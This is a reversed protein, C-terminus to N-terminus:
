TCSPLFMVFDPWRWSYKSNTSTTIHYTNSYWLFIYWYTYCAFCCPALRVDHNLASTSVSKTITLITSISKIEIRLIPTLKTKHPPRFYSSKSDPDSPKQTPPMSISNNKSPPDFQSLKLTPIFDIRYNNPHDFDIQTWHLSRIPM